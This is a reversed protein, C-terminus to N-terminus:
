SNLIGLTINRSTPQAGVFATKLEDGTASTRNRNIVYIYNNTADIETILFSGNNNATGMGSITIFDGLSYPSVDLALYRVITGSQWVAEKVLINQAGKFYVILNKTSDSNTTLAYTNYPTESMIFLGMPNRKGINVPTGHKVTLALSTYDLNDRLNLQKNFGTVVDTTFSNIYDFFPNLEEYAKTDAIQSVDFTNSTGLKM